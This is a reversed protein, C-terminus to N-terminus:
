FLTYVFPAMPTSQAMILLLGLLAMVVVIPILWYKKQERLLQWLEVVVRAKSM